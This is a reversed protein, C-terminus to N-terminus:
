EAEAAVASQTANKKEITSPREEYPLLFESVDKYKVEIKKRKWIVNVAIIAAFCLMVGLYAWPAVSGSFIGPLEAALTKIMMCFSIFSVTAFVMGTIAFTLNRQFGKPSCSLCLLIFGVLAMLMTLVLALVAVAWLIMGKGVLESGFLKTLLGLDLDNGTLFTIVSVLNVKTETVGYPLVYRVTGMPLLMCVIPLLGLVLRVIALPHGILSFKLRDFKPQRMAHQYEAEDAEKRLTEEIGYYLLNVGCQPCEARWDRIRLKYNCKPCYAAM